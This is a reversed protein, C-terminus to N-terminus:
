PQPVGSGAGTVDCLHEAAAAALFNLGQCVPESRCDTCKGTPRDVHPGTAESIPRAVNLFPPLVLSRASLYTGTQRWGCSRSSAKTLRPRLGLTFDLVDSLTEPTNAHLSSDQLRVGM